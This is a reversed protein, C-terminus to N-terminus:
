ASGMSLKPSRSACLLNAANKVCTVAVQMNLSRFMSTAPVRWFIGRLDICIDQTVTQTCTCSCVMLLLLTQPRDVNKDTCAEAARDKMALM